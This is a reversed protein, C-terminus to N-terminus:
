HLQRHTLYWKKKMMKKLAKLSLKPTLLYFGINETSLKPTELMLSDEDENTNEEERNGTTIMFGVWKQPEQEELKIWKNKCGLNLYDFLAELEKMTIIKSLLENMAEQM